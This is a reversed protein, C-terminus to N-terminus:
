AARPLELRAEKQVVLAPSTPNGEFDLWRHSVYDYLKCRSMTTIFAKVSFKVVRMDSGIIRSLKDQAKGLHYMPIRPDVHHATHEMITHSLLKFWHPYKVHMTLDEQHGIQDRNHKNDTWPITEHTHHQYVTFGMMFNWIMFPIVCAMLILGTASTHALMNGAIALLSVYAILGSALLVFDFRAKGSKDEISELPYFKHKWWREIMYYFMIGAPSRYLRELKQRWVPMADFENKSLPSWSNIEKVNNAQHHNRNHEVLWLSYNHLSPLFAIRAIIENLLKNSTYAGHAADHGIVFLSAIKLGAIISCGTRLFINELFVVGALLALYVAIDVFFLTLALGDSPKAYESIALRLQKTNMKEM